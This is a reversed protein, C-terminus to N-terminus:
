PQAAVTIPVRSQPAIAFVSRVKNDVMLYYNGVPLLLRKKRDRDTFYTLWLGNARRLKFETEGPYGWIDVDSLDLTLVGSPQDATKALDIAV